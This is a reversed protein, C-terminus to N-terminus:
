MKSALTWQIYLIPWNNIVRCDLISVKLAFLSVLLAWVTMGFRCNTFVKIDIGFVRPYLETGWFYDFILNSSTGCDSTSPWVLGKIHLFICLVHSFVTLTGLFEDFHDYVITVSYPTYLPLLYALAGFALMTLVYCYFGNDRYVPVNGKPTVPGEVRPGPVIIMLLLAWLMYGVIVGVALPSAIHIDLWIRTIGGIFGETAFIDFLKLWSGDCKAVIYWLLIVINPSYFMLLLPVFTRAFFTFLQNGNEVKVEASSHIKTSSSSGNRLSTGNTQHDSSASAHGNTDKHSDSRGNSANRKM